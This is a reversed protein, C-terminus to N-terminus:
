ALEIQPVNVRTGGLEDLRRLGQLLAFLGENSWHEDGILKGLLDRDLSSYLQLGSSEWNTEIDGGHRFWFEEDDIVLLAPFEYNGSVLNLGFGTSEMRLADPNETLWRMPQSLRSPHMPSASTHRSMTSDIDDRGFLEEELKRQLTASVQADARYDTLPKHFGKPIVALQRAANLVDASREQVLLLYDAPGRFFDAPRAIACLALVGGACLRNSTDMVSILDPLYHSRLPWLSPDSPAKRAVNDLLEGELLDATLAYEVFSTLGLSGCMSDGQVNFNLLRFIQTELLRMGLTAAEALRQVSKAIVVENTDVWQASNASDFTLKIHPSSLPYGLRLWEPRTVISTSVVCDDYRVRYLRPSISRRGDCYYGALTNAVTSRGVKARRDIQDILSGRDLKKLIAEHKRQATGRSWGGHQDLWEFAVEFDINAPGVDVSNACEIIEQLRQPSQGLLRALKPRIYPSPEHAGSEWRNVTSRDTHLAAALSEQTHGAAKRVSALAARRRM